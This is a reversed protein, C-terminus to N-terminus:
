KSGRSEDYLFCEMTHDDVIGVAQMFSYCIVPGVFSFGRKKLAKSLRISEETSAPVEEDTKWHNVIQRQDFFKWLYQHFSGFESQVELFAQANRITSTIKRQNRIIGENQMLIDIQEETFLAVKELDFDHFAKRYAERRKLITIWSLGAQAGELTLMEFLYDDDQFRSFEGWEEDHYRIYIPEDTVWGCRSISSKNKVKNSRM